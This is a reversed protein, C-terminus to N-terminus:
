FGGQLIYHRRGEGRVDEGRAPVQGCGQGSRSPPSPCTPPAPAPLAASLKLRILTQEEAAGGWGSLM